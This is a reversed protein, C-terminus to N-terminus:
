EKKSWYHGGAAHGPCSSRSGLLVRLLSGPHLAGGTQWARLPQTGPWGGGLAGVTGSPTAARVESTEPFSAHGDDVTLGAAPTM